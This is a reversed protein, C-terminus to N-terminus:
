RYPRRTTQHRPALVQGLERAAARVDPHFGAFDEDTLVDLGVMACLRRLGTSRRLHDFASAM